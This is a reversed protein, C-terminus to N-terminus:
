TAVAQLPLKRKSVKVLVCSQLLCSLLIISVSLWQPIGMKALYVIPEPQVGGAFILHPLGFFTPLITYLLIDYFLLAGAILLIRFFGNPKFLLLMILSVISLFYTLGSGMFGMIAIDIDSPLADPFASYLFVIEPKVAYSDNFLEPFELIVHYNPPSNFNITAIAHRPWENPYTIGFEPYAQIGPWVHLTADGMGILNAAVIHGAEHIIITFIIFIPLIVSFVLIRKIM